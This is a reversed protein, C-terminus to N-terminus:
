RAGVPGAFRELVEAAGALCVTEMGHDHHVGLTPWHAHDTAKAM